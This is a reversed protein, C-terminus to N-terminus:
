DRNTGKKSLAEIRYTKNEFEVYIYGDKEDIIDLDASKLFESNSHNKIKDGSRTIKAENIAARHSNSEYVLTGVGIALSISCLIMFVISAQTSRKSNSSLALLFLIVMAVLASYELVIIHFPTSTLSSLIEQLQM